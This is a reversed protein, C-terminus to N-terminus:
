NFFKLFRGRQGRIWRDREKNRYGYYEEKNKIVRRPTFM